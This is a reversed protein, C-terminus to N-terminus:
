GKPEARLDQVMGTGSVKDEILITSARLRQAMEIVCHKLAPYEVRRRWVNLLYYRGRAIRWVSIVSWDNRAGAKYATDISFVTEGDDPVDDYTGFWGVKIMGGELPV